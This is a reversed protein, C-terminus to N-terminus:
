RIRQAPQAFVVVSGTLAVGLGFPVALGALVWAPFTRDVFGIVPDKLRLDPAYRRENAVGAAMGFLWGVHAHTLGSM